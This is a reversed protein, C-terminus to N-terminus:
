NDSPTFLTALLQDAVPRATGFSPFEHPALAPATHIGLTVAMEPHEPTLPAYLNPIMVDVGAVRLGLQTTLTEVAQVYSADMEDTVDLLDAGNVFTADERLLVQTGRSVVSALTLHYSALRYREVTGLQLTAQPRTGAKGRLTRDNKRTLLTEISSRGDGVVNAPIRELIARVRGDIVLFRYSSAVILEEAIVTTTREFFQRVVQEFLARQPMIRFAVVAQTQDAAKLVIGGAAVLQDYDDILQNASRYTKSAPVTAGHEALLQKAAVRHTLTRSLAQPNLDTGSGNVLLQAQDARTLRLVNNTADLVSVQIGQALARQTMMQSALNLQTFGPLSFPQAQAAEQYQQAQTLAWACLDKQRALQASPTKKPDSVRQKLHALLVQTAAPLGNASAFHKLADLVQVAPVAQASATTPNETTLQTSLARAQQDVQAVMKPPLGPMMVFYAVLLQIFALANQDVGTPTTPDLDLGRFELYYVGQTPLEALSGAGRLRVVGDFASPATLTGKKVAAQLGQVYTDVSAYDAAFQRQRAAQVASRQRKSTTDDVRVAPAAGFLYQLLWNMRVLGQAVKIYVANRFAVYSAFQQHFQDNYLRSLLQESVSLNVHTQSTAAPAKLPASALPWLAEDSALCRRVSANLGTLYAMLDPLQRMAPTVLELQGPTTGVRVQRNKGLAGLASPAATTALQGHDDVRQMTVELGFSTQSLLPVLHDKVIAKGIADLEM